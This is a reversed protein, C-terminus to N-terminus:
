RLSVNAQAWFVYRYADTRFQEGECNAAKDVAWKIAYYENEQTSLPRYNTAVHKGDLGYEFSYAYLVDNM